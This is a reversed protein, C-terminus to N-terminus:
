LAQSHILYFIKAVPLHQNSINPSVKIKVLDYSTTVATLDKIQVIQRDVITQDRVPLPHVIRGVVINPANPRLEILHEICQHKINLTSHPFQLPEM